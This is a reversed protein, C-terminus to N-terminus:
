SIGQQLFWISLDGNGASSNIFIRSANTPWTYNAAVSVTAGSMSTAAPFTPITLGDIPSITTPTSIQDVDDLTTQFTYNVTGIVDVYVMLDSKIRNYDNRFWLTAGSTGTGAMVNTGVVGDAYINTVKTFYVAPVIDATSVTNNNPGAITVSATRVSDIYGTITFNVGSLNGTSTLTVARTIGPFNALYLSELSSNTGGTIQENVSLTGNILLNGAAALTQPLCVARSDPTPWLIRTPRAM